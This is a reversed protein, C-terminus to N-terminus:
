PNQPALPTPVPLPATPAADIVQPTPSRAPAREPLQLDLDIAVTPQGEAPNGAAQLPLHLKVAELGAPVPVFRLEYMSPDAAEEAAPAELLDLRQGGGQLYIGPGIASWDLPAPEGAQWYQLLLHTGQGDTYAAEVCVQGPPLPACPKDGAQRTQMRTAVSVSVHTPALNAQAAPLWALPLRWGQPAVLYVQPTFSFVGAFVLKGRPWASQVMTPKVQVGDPLELYMGAFPAPVFDAEAWLTLEGDRIMGQWVTISQEGQHQTVPGELLRTDALRIFGAEPIYGYGLFHQIAAMVPTPTVLLVFALACLLAWFVPQPRGFWRQKWGLLPKRQAQQALRSRLSGRLRSEAGVDLAWLRGALELDARLEEDGSVPSAAAGRGAFRDVQAMFSRAAREAGQAERM